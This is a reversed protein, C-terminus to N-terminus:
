FIVSYNHWSTRRPWGLGWGERKGARLKVGPSVRVGPSAWSCSTLIPAPDAVVQCIFGTVSATVQVRKLCPMTGESGLGHGQGARSVSGGIDKLCLRPWVRERAVLVCLESSLSPMGQSLPCYQSEIESRM